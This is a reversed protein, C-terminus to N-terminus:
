LEVKKNYNKKNKYFIIKLKSLLNNHLFAKKYLQLTPSLRLISNMNNKTGTIFRIRNLVSTKPSNVM